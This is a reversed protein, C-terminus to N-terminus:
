RRANSAHRALVRELGQARRTLRWANAAGMPQGGGTNELLGRECLRALLRSTQGPDTIGSQEAVEKNSLGPRAAVVKLVALTRSTLRVDVGVLGDLTTSRKPVARPSPQTRTLERRAAAAGLYPLAIMSMLPNLLEVLADSGPTLLRSHVVSLVGGVTAEATLLPPEAREDARGDDLVQAFRDLLEGRLKLAASGAAPAGIVILWALAPEEDFFSLLEFLGARVRDVWQEHAECGLRARAGALELAGEISALLCDNRDEFLEYFTRSSVRARAVLRSVSVSEGGQECALDIMASIIRTRQAESVGGRPIRKPRGYVRAGSVVRTEM